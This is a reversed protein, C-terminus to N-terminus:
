FYHKCHTCEYQKGIKASAIGWAWVSASRNAISLRRVNEKKGCIPCVPLKSLRDEEALYRELAKQKEREKREDEVEALEQTRNEMLEQYAVPDTKSLKYDKLSIIYVAISGVFVAASAIFLLGMLGWGSYPYMDVTLLLFGITIALTIAMAIFFGKGPKTPLPYKKEDALIAKCYPCVKGRDSIEKGCKPCSILAM